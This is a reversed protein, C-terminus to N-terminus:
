SCIKSTYYNKFSNIINKWEHLESATSKFLKPTNIYEILADKGCTSVNTPSKEM